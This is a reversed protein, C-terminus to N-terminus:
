VIVKTFGPECDNLEVGIASVAVADEPSGTVNVAVVKDTHETEPEFTVISVSPVHVMEALWAPLAVYKAAVWTACLKPTTPPTGPAGVIPM